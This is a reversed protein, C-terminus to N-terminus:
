DIKIYEIENIADGDPFKDIRKCTIKDKTVVLDQWLTNNGDWHMVLSDLRPSAFEWTGQQYIQPDGPNETTQGEDIKYTGDRYFIYYNDKVYDSLMSYIDTTSGDGWTTFFKTLQWKRLDLLQYNSEALTVSKKYWAGNEDTLTIDYTGGIMYFIEITDTSESSGVVEMSTENNAEKGLYSKYADQHSITYTGANEVKRQVLLLVRSPAKEYDAEVKFSIIDLSQKLDDKECATFGLVLAMAALFFKKM